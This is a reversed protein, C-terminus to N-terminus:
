QNLDAKFAEIRQHANRISELQEVLVTRQEENLETGLVENYAEIASNEGREIEDLLAGDGSTVASKVNMWARHLTGKLTGDNPEPTGNMSVIMNALRGGFVEREKATERFMTAYAENEALSAAEGYGNVSSSNIGILRNFNEVPTAEPTVLPNHAIDTQTQNLM